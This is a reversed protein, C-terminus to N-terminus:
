TASISCFNRNPSIAVSPYTRVFGCLCVPVPGKHFKIIQIKKVILYLLNIYAMYIPRMLSVHLVHLIETPYDRPPAAHLSLTTCPHIILTPVSM